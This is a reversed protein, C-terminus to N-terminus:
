GLLRRDGGVIGATLEMGWWEMWAVSRLELRPMSRTAMVLRGLAADVSRRGNRRDLWDVAGIVRRSGVDVVGARGVPRIGGVLVVLTSGAQAWAEVAETNEDSTGHTVGNADSANRRCLPSSSLSPSSCPAVAWM